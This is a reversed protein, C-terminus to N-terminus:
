GEALVEPDRPAEHLIKMSSYLKARAGAEEVEKWKPIGDETVSQGM